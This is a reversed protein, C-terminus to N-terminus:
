GYWGWSEAVEPFLEEFDLRRCAWTWWKPSRGGPSSLGNGDYYTPSFIIPEDLYIDIYKDRVSTLCYYGRPWPAGSVIKHVLLGGGCQTFNILSWDVEELRVFGSFEPNVCWCGDILDYKDKSRNCRSCQM